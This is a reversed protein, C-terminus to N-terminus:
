TQEVPKMWYLYFLIFYFLYTILIFSFTFNANNLYLIIKYKCFIFSSSNSLEGLIEENKLSRVEREEEVQIMELNGDKLESIREKMHDARNETSELANKM